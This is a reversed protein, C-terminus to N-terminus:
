STSENSDVIKDILSVSDELSQLLNTLFLKNNDNDSFRIAYRISSLSGEIEGGLSEIGSRSLLLSM